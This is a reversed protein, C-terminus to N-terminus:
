PYASRGYYRHHGGLDDQVLDSSWSCDSIMVASKRSSITSSGNFQSLVSGLLTATPLALLSVFFTKM